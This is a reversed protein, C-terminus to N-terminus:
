VPSARPLSAHRVSTDGRLEARVSVLEESRRMLEDQVSQLQEEMFLITSQKADAKLRWM